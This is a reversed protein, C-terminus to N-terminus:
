MTERRSRIGSSPSACHTRQRGRKTIACLASVPATLRSNGGQRTSNPRFSWGLWEDYIVVAIDENAIYGEVQGRLENVPLAQPELTFNLLTFRGDADTKGAARVALELLILTLLIAGAAILVNTFITRRM